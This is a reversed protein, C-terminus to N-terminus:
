RGYICLSGSVIHPLPVDSILSEAASFALFPLSLYTFTPQPQTSHNVLDKEAEAIVAFSLLAMLTHCPSYNHHTLKFLVDYPAGVIRQRVSTVPRAVRCSARRRDTPM